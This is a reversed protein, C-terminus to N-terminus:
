VNPILYNVAGPVIDVTFNKGRITEGDVSVGFERDSSVEVHKAEVRIGLHANKPDDFM